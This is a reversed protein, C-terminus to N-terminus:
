KFIRKLDTHLSEAIKILSRITLNKKGNEIRSIYAKDVKLICALEQQSLGRKIRLEKITSGLRSLKDPMDVPLRYIVTLQQM